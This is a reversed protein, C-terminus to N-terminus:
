TSRASGKERENEDDRCERGSPWFVDLVFVVVPKQELVEVAAGNDNKCYVWVRGGGVKKRKSALRWGRSILNEDYFHELDEVSLTSRYRRSVLMSVRKDSRRARSSIETKKPVPVANLEKELEDLYTPPRFEATSLSHTSVAVGVIVLIALTGVILIAFPNRQAAGRESM